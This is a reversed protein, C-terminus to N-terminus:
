ITYNHTKAEKELEAKRKLLAKETSNCNPNIKELVWDSVKYFFKNIAGSNKRESLMHNVLELESNIPKYNEKNKAPLTIKYDKSNRKPARQIIRKTGRTATASETRLGM